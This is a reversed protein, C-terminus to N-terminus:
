NGPDPFRSLLGGDRGDALLAVALIIQQRVRRWSTPAERRDRVPRIGPLAQARLLGLLVRGQPRAARSPGDADLMGPMCSRGGLGLAERGSVLRAGPLDVVPRRGQPQGRPAAFWLASVPALGAAPWGQGSGHPRL